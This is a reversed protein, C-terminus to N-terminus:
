AVEIVSMMGARAHELVHCHFMWPGPNDALLAVEHTEGRRVLLTDQWRNLPDVSGDRSLLQFVHGHIHMPHDFVSENILRLRYSRGLQLKFLQPAGLAPGDSQNNLAWFRGQGAMQRLGMEQGDLSASELQGMMGGQLRVELLPAMKLDPATLPNAALAVPADLPSSRLPPEDSYALDIFRYSQRPYYDDVVTVRSGPDLAADLIVDARMGPGLIVRGEPAAHPQCPQGDLAIIQPSHDTFKLAFVRANATNILRLRLREGSRLSFSEPLQGNLTVTNGLRGAHSLDHFQGFPEAIQAQDTLRWDDLQWVLDRDVPPPNDEEVILAGALGRGVQEDSLVHPHYWFTGADPLDFAYDFSEGPAVPAQTLHPVGDMANPLRLGHWHITSDQPLSNTLTVQLREGQRYRLVPGPTVSNYGWTATEYGPVLETSHASATLNQYGDRALLPRPATLTLAGGLALTGGIFQRRSLRPQVSKTTKLM